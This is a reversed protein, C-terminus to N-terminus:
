NPSPKAAHDIVITEIPGQSREVKLGCEALFSKFSDSQDGSYHPDLDPQRQRYNFVGTVGTRDLVPMHLVFDGAFTALQSMSSDAINWQGGAYGISSFPGVGLPAADPSASEVPRLALPKENRELLYVDGPATSRHFQLQFRDILLSQLMERVRPDEIGFVEHRLDKIQAGIASSPKGEVYYTQKHTWEEGAIIRNVPIAFAVMM